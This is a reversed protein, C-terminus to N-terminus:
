PGEGWLTAHPRLEVWDPGVDTILFASERRVILSHGVSIRFATRQPHKARSRRLLPRIRHVRFLPM